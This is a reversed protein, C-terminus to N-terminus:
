NIIVKETIIEAGVSLKVIYTAAAVYDLNISASSSDSFSQIKVVAGSMSLITVTFDTSLPLSVIVNRGNNYINTKEQLELVNIPKVDVLIEDSKIEGCKGYATGISYKHKGVLKSEDNFSLNTIPIQNLLIENKYINFGLIPDISKFEVSSELRSTAKADNHKIAPIYNHGEIPMVRFDAISNNTESVKGVEELIVTINWNFDFESGFLKLISEWQLGDYSVLNGKGDVAKSNDCGAPYAEPDHTVKYGIIYEKESNILAPKDFTITTFEGLNYEEIEQSSLIEGECMVFAMIDGCRENILIEIGTVSYGDYLALESGIWKTGAYIDGGDEWGIGGDNENNHYKFLAPDSWAPANWSLEVNQDEVDAKIVKVPNCKNTYDIKITKNDSKDSVCTNRYLTEIQYNYEGDALSFDYFLKETVPKSNLKEGNKFINYGDVSFYTDPSGVYINDLLLIFSNIGVSNIAVYKAAAPIKFMYETWAGPVNYPKANNDSDNFFIFDELQNGTLSYGVRIKEYGYKLDHTKAMFNFAYEKDFNMEPSILWDNSQVGPVMASFCALIQNGQYTQVPSVPKTKSPNFVIFAMPKGSNPYQANQFAYTVAGDEDRVDWNGINKIIFPEYSEFDDYQGDYDIIPAGWSLKIHRQNVVETSFASVNKCEGVYKLEITGPESMYSECTFNYVATVTYNHIGLIPERDTYKAETILAEGNLRKGDRYVNYGLLNEVAAGTKDKLEWTLNIHIDNAIAAIVNSPVYCKEDAKIDVNMVVPIEIPTTGPKSQLLITVECKDGSNTEFSNFDVKLTSTEGAKVLGKSENIGVWTITQAVDYVFILNPLAPQYQAYLISGILVFKGPIYDSTGCMGAPQSTQRKAVDPAVYEPIDIASHEKGTLKDETVSFQRLTVKDVSTGAGTMAVQCYLWLMPTEESYLDLAISQISNGPITFTKVIAGSRNILYLENWSGVYFGDTIPDYECYTAAKVSPDVSIVTGWENKAVDYSVLKKETNVVFYISKSDGAAGAMYYSTAPLTIDEVFEGDKTYKILKKRSSSHTYIHNDYYIVSNDANGMANFSTVVDFPKKSENKTEVVTPFRFEANWECEGDGNNTININQTFAKDPSITLEIKDIDSSIRPQKMTLEVDGMDDEVIFDNDVYDNYGNKKVLVTYSAKEVDSLTFTGNVDTTTEYKIVDDNMTLIISADAVAVSGSKVTGLVNMKEPAWVKINDIYFQYGWKGNCNGATRFRVKFAKGAVISSIDKTRITLPMGGKKTEVRDIEVWNTGDHLEVILYDKYDDHFVNMALEYEFFISSKGIASLTKSILTQTYTADASNSYRLVKTVGQVGTVTARVCSWADLEGPVDITWYNTTLLESEFRERFPLTSTSPLNVILPLSNKSEDTKYIAKMTYTYDKLEQLGSDTYFLNDPSIVEANVKVGDRYINYGTLGDPDAIRSVEFMAIPNPVQGQFNVIAMKRGKPYEVIDLGGAIHFSEIMTESVDTYDMFEIMKGTAVGTEADYEYLQKGSGVAGSGMLQQFAYIKGDSYATSYAAGNGKEMILQLGDKIKTGDKRLFASTSYDGAEFGGKGDDLTPIYCIHRVAFEVAISSILKKNALDLKYIRYIGEAGGYFFEGDFTLDRIGQVKDIFFEEVFVGFMDYKVFKGPTNWSAAYIFQGDSASAQQPYGMSKQRFSSKFKWPLKTVDAKADPISPSNWQIRVKDTWVREYSLNKPPLNDSGYSNFTLATLIVAVALISYKKM